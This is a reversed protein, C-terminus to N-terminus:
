SILQPTVRSQSPKLQPALTPDPPQHLFRQLFVSCFNPALFHIHHFGKPQGLSVAIQHADMEDM